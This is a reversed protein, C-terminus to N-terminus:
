PRSAVTPDHRFGWATGRPHRLSARMSRADRDTSRLSEPSPAEPPAAPRGAHLSSAPFCPSESVAAPCSTIGTDLEGLAICFSEEPRDPITTQRTGESADLQGLAPKGLSGVGARNGVSAITEFRAPKERKATIESYCLHRVRAHAIANTAHEPLGPQRSGM